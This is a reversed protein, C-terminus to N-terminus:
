EQNIRRLLARTVWDGALLGGVFLVIFAVIVLPGPGLAPAVIVSQIILAVIVGVVRGILLALRSNMM